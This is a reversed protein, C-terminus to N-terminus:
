AKSPKAEADREDEPILRVALAVLVLVALAIPLYVTVPVDIGLMVLLTRFEVIAVFGFALLLLMGVPGPRKM